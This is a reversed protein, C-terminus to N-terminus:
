TAVAAADRSFSFNCMEAALALCTVFSVLHCCVAAVSAPRLFYLALLFVFSSRRAPPPVVSADRTLPLRIRCNDLPQVSCPSAAAASSSTARSSPLIPSLSLSLPCCACCLCALQVHLGIVVRLRFVFFFKTLIQLMIRWSIKRNKRKM